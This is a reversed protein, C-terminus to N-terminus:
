YITMRGKSRGMVRGGNRDTQRHRKSRQGEHISCLLDTITESEYLNRGIRCFSIGAKSTKCESMQTSMKEDDSYLPFHFYQNVCPYHFKEDEIRKCNKTNNGNWLPLYFVTDNIRSILQDKDDARWFNISCCSTFYFVRTTGKPVSVEDLLTGMLWHGDILRREEALVFQAIIEAICCLGQQHGSSSPPHLYGVM